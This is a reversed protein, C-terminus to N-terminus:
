HDFSNRYSFICGLKGDAENNIELITSFVYHSDAPQLICRLHDKQKNVKRLIVNSGALSGCLLGSKSWASDPVPVLENLVRLAVPGVIAFECYDARQAVFNDHNPSFANKFGDVLTEDYSNVLIIKEQNLCIIGGTGVAVWQFPELNELEFYSKTILSAEKGIIILKRLCSLDFVYSTEPTARITEKLASIQCSQFIKTEVSNGDFFTRLPSVSNFDGHVKSM